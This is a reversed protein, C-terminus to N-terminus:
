DVTILCPTTVSGFWPDGTVVDIQAQGTSNALFLVATPPGEPTLMQGNTGVVGPVYPGLMQVVSNGTRSHGGSARVLLIDGVNLSLTLPLEQSNQIELLRAVTTSSRQGYLM